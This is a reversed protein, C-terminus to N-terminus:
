FLADKTFFNQMEEIYSVLEDPKFRKNTNGSYRDKVVVFEDDSWYGALFSHVAKNREVYRCAEENKLILIKM